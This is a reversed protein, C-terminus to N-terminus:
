SKGLSLVSVFVKDLHSDSGHIKVSNNRWVAGRCNMVSVGRDPRAFLAAMLQFMSTNVPM